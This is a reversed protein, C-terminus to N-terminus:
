IRMSIVVYSVHLQTTYLVFLGIVTRINRLTQIERLLFNFRVVKWAITAQFLKDLKFILIRLNNTYIVVLVFQPTIQDLDWEYSKCEIQM